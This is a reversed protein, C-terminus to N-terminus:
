ARDEKLHLEDGILIKHIENRTPMSLDSSLDVSQPRYNLHGLNKADLEQQDVSIILEMDDLDFMASYYFLVISLFFVYEHIADMPSVNPHCGRRQVFLHMSNMVNSYTTALTVICMYRLRNTWLRCNDSSSDLQDQIAYLVMHCLTFAFFRELTAMYEIEKMQDVEKNLLLFLSTYLIHVGYLIPQVEVLVRTIWPSNPNKVLFRTMRFYSVALLVTILFFFGFRFLYHPLARLQFARMISLFGDDQGPANVYCITARWGYWIRMSDNVQLVDEPIMPRNDRFAALLAICFFTTSWLACFKAVTGVSLRFHAHKAEEELTLQTM